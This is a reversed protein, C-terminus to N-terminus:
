IHTLIVAISILWVNGRGTHNNMTAAMTNKKYMICINQVEQFYDRCISAGNYIHNSSVTAIVLRFLSLYMEIRNLM